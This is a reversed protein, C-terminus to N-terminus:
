HLRSGALEEDEDELDQMAAVGHKKPRRTQAYIADRLAKNPLAWPPLMIASFPCMRECAGCAWCLEESVEVWNRELNLAIAHTVGCARTCLECGVCREHNVVAITGM